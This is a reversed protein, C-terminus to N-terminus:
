TGSLFTKEMYNERPQIRHNMFGKRDPGAHATGITIDRDQPAAQVFLCDIYLDSRSASAHQCGRLNHHKTVTSVLLIVPSRMSAPERMAATSCNIPDMVSM